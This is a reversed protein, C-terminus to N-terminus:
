LADDKIDSVDLINEDFCHDKSVSGAKQCQKFFKASNVRTAKMHVGEMKVLSASHEEKWFLDMYGEMSALEVEIMERLRRQLVRLDSRYHHDPPKVTYFTEARVM